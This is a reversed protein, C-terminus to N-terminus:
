GTDGMQERLSRPRMDTWVNEIHSLCEDRRGEVGVVRWGPPPERGAEWISHQDEDNAVVVWRRGDDDEDPVGDVIAGDRAERLGRSRAVTRWAQTQQCTVAPGERPTAKMFM